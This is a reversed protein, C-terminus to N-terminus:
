PRHPQQGLFGPGTPHNYQRALSPALLPSIMSRPWPRPLTFRIDKGPHPTSSNEAFTFPSCAMTAARASGATATSAAPTPVDLIMSTPRASISATACLRAPSVWSESTCRTSGARGFKQDLPIRMDPQLDKELATYIDIAEDNTSGTIRDAGPGAHPGRESPDLPAYWSIRHRCLGDWVPADGCPLDLQGTPYVHLEHRRDIQAARLACLSHHRASRSASRCLPRQRGAPKAPRRSHQDPASITSAASIGTTLLVLVCLVALFEM